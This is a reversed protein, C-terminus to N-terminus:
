GPPSPFRHPRDGLSAEWRRVAEAAVSRAEDLSLGTRAVPLDAIDEVTAWGDVYTEGAADEVQVGGDSLWVRVAGRESRIEFREFRIRKM